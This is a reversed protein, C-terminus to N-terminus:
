AGECRAIPFESVTGAVTPAFVTMEEWPWM